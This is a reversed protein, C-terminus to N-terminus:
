HLCINGLFLFKCFIYSIYAAIHGPHFLSSVLPLYSSAGNLAGFCSTGNELMTWTSCCGANYFNVLVSVMRFYTVQSYPPPSKHGIITVWVRFKHEAVRVRLLPCGINRRGPLLQPNPAKSMPRVETTTNLTSLAITIWEGQRVQSKFRCGKPELDLERVM